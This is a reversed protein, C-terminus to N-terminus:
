RENNYIGISLIILGISIFILGTLNLNNVKEDLLYWALFSGLIYGLAQFPYALSVQIKSLVFIWLFISFSYCIMGYWIHISKILELIVEISFSLKKNMVATRLFIQASANLAISLFLGIM